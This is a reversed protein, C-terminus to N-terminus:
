CGLAQAEKQSRHILGRLAACIKTSLASYMYAQQIYSQCMSLNLRNKGFSSFARSRRYEFFVPKGSESTIRLAM